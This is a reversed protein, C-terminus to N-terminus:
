FLRFFMVFHWRFRAGIECSFVIVHGATSRGSSRLLRDFRSALCISGRNTTTSRSSLSWQLTTSNPLINPNKKPKQTPSSYILAQPKKQTPLPYISTQLKGLILLPSIYYHIQIRFKQTKKQSFPTTHLSLKIYPM